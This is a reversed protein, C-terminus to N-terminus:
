SEKIEDILRFWAIRAEASNNPGCACPVAPSLKPCGMKHGISRALANGVEILKTETVTVAIGGCPIYGIFWRACWCQPL